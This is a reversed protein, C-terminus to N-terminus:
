SRSISRSSAAAAAAALQRSARTRSNRGRHRKSRRHSSCSGRRWPAASGPRARARSRRHEFAVAEEDADVAPARDLASRRPRTRRATAASGARGRRAAHRHAAAGPGRGPAGDAPAGRRAGGARWPRHAAGAFRRGPSARSHRLSRARRRAGPFQRLSVHARDLAPRARAEGARADDLRSRACSRRQAMDADAAAHLADAEAGEDLVLRELAADVAPHAVAAVARDLRHKGAAPPPRRRSRLRGARARQARADVREILAVALASSSAHAPRAFQERHQRRGSGRHRRVAGRVRAAARM